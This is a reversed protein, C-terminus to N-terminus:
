SPINGVTTPQETRMGMDTTVFEHQLSHVALVPCPATRVVREAVSGLMLRSLARRGHTGLVILNAKNARAYEVITAATRDSTITIAEAKLLRRDDDTLLEETQQRAAGEIDQLVEPPLGAFGDVGIATISLDETVHLV